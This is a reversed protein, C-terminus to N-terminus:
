PQNWGLKKLANYGYRQSYWSDQSKIKSLIHPIAKPDGRRGLGFFAQCVVNPHPDQLLGLLDDYTTSVRSAGLTRALWYRVPLHPSDLLEAYSAFRSIEIGSADIVRLAVTREQWKASALMQRLRTQSVKDVNAQYVTLLPIAGLVLCVLAALVSATNRSLLLRGIRKLVLYVAGFLMIPFAFLISYFTFLRFAGYRDAQKSLQHLTQRPQALFRQPTTNLIIRNEQEFTMQRDSLRVTVDAAKDTGVPFFDNHQLVKEVSRQRRSEIDGLLRYTCQTKQDLTKFVEAPFLTYRYYLDNIKVGVPNSLLVFDRINVFLTSNLQTLWCGALIILAAFPALIVVREPHRGPRTRNAPFVLVVSVPVLTFFLTAILNFGAANLWGLLGAPLLLLILPLRRNIIRMRQTLFVVLISLLVIGAGTSLTFFLGGGLSSGWGSLAPQIHRTPITLFGASALTTIKQELHHNSRHVIITAILQSVLLGVLLPLIIV